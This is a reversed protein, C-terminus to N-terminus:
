GADIPSSETARLRADREDREAWRGQLARPSPIRALYALLNDIRSTPGLAVLEQWAALEVEVDVPRWGDRLARRFWRSPTHEAHEALLQVHDTGIAGRVNRLARLQRRSSALARIWPIAGVFDRRVFRTVLGGIGPQPLVDLCWAVLASFPHSLRDICADLGRRDVAHALLAIVNRRRALRWAAPSRTLLRLAALQHAGCTAALELASPPCRALFRGVSSAESAGARLVIGSTNSVTRWWSGELREVHLGREWSGIRLRPVLPGVDLHLANDPGVHVIPEDRDDAARTEAAGNM